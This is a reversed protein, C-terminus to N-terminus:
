KEIWGVFAALLGLLMFGIKMNDIASKSVANGFITLTDPLSIAIAFCFLMLIIGLFIHVVNMNDWEGTTDNYGASDFYYRM